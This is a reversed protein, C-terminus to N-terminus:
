DAISLLMRCVEINHSQEQERPAARAREHWFQASRRLNFAVAHDSQSATKTLRRPTLLEVLGCSAPSLLLSLVLLM